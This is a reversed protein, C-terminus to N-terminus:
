AVNEECLIGPKAVHETCDTSDSQSAFDMYTM